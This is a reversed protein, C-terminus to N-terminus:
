HSPSFTRTTSCVHQKRRYAPSCSSVPPRLLFVAAHETPRLHRLVFAAASSDRLGPVKCLQLEPGLAAALIEDDREAQLANFTRKRWKEREATRRPYKLDRVHWCSSISPLQTDVV